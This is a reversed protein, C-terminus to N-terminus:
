RSMVRELAEALADFRDILIDAQLHEAPAQAYGYTVAVVPLGADKGAAVDIESDGVMVASAGAAGMLDLTLRVHRGDPKRHPVEDGGTVGAFLVDLGLARLALNTTVLPKNSCIGLLVGRARLSKLVEVVCPYIVTHEAPHAKYFTLYREMAHDVEDGSPAPGTASLAIELMAGAGMGIMGRVEDLSLRRRGREGLTRNVAAGIDAVSDILTGDLDFVVADPLRGGGTM